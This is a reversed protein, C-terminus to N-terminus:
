YSTTRPVPLCKALYGDQPEGWSPFYGVRVKEGAKRPLQWFSMPERSMLAEQTQLINTEEPPLYM